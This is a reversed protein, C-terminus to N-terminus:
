NISGVCKVVSEREIWKVEIFMELNPYETHTVAMFRQSQCIVVIELPIHMNFM